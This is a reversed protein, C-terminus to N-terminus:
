SLLSCTRLPMKPPRCKFAARFDESISAIYQVEKALAPKGADNGPCYHHYVFLLYFLQCRSTEWLPVARFSRLWHGDRALEMATEISLLPLSFHKHRRTMLVGLGKQCSKYGELLQRTAKSWKPGSYFIQKWVVDALQVGIASLVVLRESGNGFHLASYANMSIVVSDNFASIKDIVVAKSMKSTVGPPPQYTSASWGFAFLNLLNRVYDRGLPPTRKNLPYIDTPLLIRLSNLYSSLRPRDETPFISKARRWIATVIEAFINHLTADHEPGNINEEIASGIGMLSYENLVVLCFAFYKHTYTWLSRKLQELLFDSVAKFIFFVITDPQRTDNLLISFTKSLLQINPHCLKDPVKADSVNLIIRRWDDVTLPKVLQAVLSFNSIIHNPDYPVDLEKELSDMAELSVNLNMRMNITKLCDRRVQEYRAAIADEILPRTKRMIVAFLGPKRFVELDAIFVSRPWGGRGYLTMVPVPQINFKVTMRLLFVLIKHKTKLEGITPRLVDLYADATPSGQNHANATAVLCSQFLTYVANGIITNPATYFNKLSFYNFDKFALPEPREAYRGCVHHYVSRCPSISSNVHHYLEEAERACCPKPAHVVTHKPKWERNYAAWLFLVLVAVLVLAVLQIALAKPSGFVSKGQARPITSPTPQASPSGAPSPTTTPSLQSTQSSASRAPSPQRMTPSLQPSEM